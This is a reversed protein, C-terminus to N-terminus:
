SHTNEGANEGGSLISTVEDFLATWDFPEIHEIEKETVPGDDNPETSAPKEKWRLSVKGGGIYLGLTRKGGRLIVVRKTEEKSGALGLVKRMDVVAVEEGRRTIIGKVPDKQGPVIFVRDADVVGDVETLDLALRKGNLEFVFKDGIKEMDNMDSM